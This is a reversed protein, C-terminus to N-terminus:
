KPVRYIAVFGLQILGLRSVCIFFLKLFCSGFQLCYILSIHSLSLNLASAVRPHSVFARQSAGSSVHPLCTGMWPILTWASPTGSVSTLWIAYSLVLLFDSPDPLPPRPPSTASPPCLSFPLGPGETPALWALVPFNSLSAPLRQNASPLLVIIQSKRVFSM